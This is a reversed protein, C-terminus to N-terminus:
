CVSLSVWAAAVAETEATEAEGVPVGDRACAARARGLSALLDRRPSPPSPIIPVHLPQKHPPQNQPPNPPRGALFLLVSRSRRHACLFLLLSGCMAGAVFRAVCRPPRATSLFAVRVRGERAGAGPWPRIQVTRVRVPGRTRPALRARRRMRGAIQNKESPAEVRRAAAGGAWRRHHPRSRCPLRHRRPPGLTLPPVLPTHPPPPPPRHAPGLTRTAGM